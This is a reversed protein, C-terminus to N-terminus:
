MFLNVRKDTMKKYFEMREGYCEVLHDQFMREFFKRKVDDSNYFTDNAIYGKNFQYFHHHLDYYSM